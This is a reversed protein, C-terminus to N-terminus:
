DTPTSPASSAAPQPYILPFEPLEGEGDWNCEDQSRFEVLKFGYDQWVWRGKTGCDGMARGKSFTTMQKTAADYEVNFLTSAGTWGLIDSFDAFYQPEFEGSTEVYVKYLSNYGFAGADCPLIYLNHTGDLTDTIIERGIALDEFPRCEQDARHRDLLAVPIQPTGPQDASTPALGYPPTSAVRESGIRNQRKDIWSLASTMGKLSFKAQQAVGNRDNFSLSISSALTLRDMLIQAGEGLFFFENVSGYAGVQEAFQFSQTKGDITVVFDSYEDAQTAITALSVEWYSQEAHRGIRLVYDAVPVGTPNPNQYATASCYGDQRCAGLWDKFFQRTEGYSEALASCILFLTTILTALIRIKL